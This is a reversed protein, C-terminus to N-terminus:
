GCCRLMGLQLWGFRGVGVGLTAANKISRKKKMLGDTPWHKGGRCLKRRMLEAKGKFGANQGKLRSQEIKENKETKTKTKKEKKKTNGTHNYRLTCTQLSLHNLKKESQRKKNTLPGM